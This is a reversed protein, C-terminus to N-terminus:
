YMIGKVDLFHITNPTGNPHIPTIPDYPNRDKWGLTKNVSESCELFKVGLQITVSESDNAVVSLGTPLYAWHNLDRVTECFGVRGDKDKEISGSNPLGFAVHGSILSVGLLAILLRMDGGKLFQFDM